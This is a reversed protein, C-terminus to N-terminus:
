RFRLLCLNRSKAIGQLLLRFRLLKQGLGTESRGLRELEADRCPGDRDIDVNRAVNDVLELLDADLGGEILDLGSHPM